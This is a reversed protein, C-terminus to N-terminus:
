EVTRHAGACDRGGGEVVELLFGGLLGAPLGRVGQQVARVDDDGRVRRVVGFGGDAGDAGDGGLLGHPDEGALLRARRDVPKGLLYSVMRATATLGLRWVMSSM